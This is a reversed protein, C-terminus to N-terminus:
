EQLPNSSRTKSGSLNVNLKIWLASLYLYDVINEILKRIVEFEKNVLVQM